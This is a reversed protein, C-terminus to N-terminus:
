KNNEKKEKSMMLRKLCGYLLYERNNNVIECGYVTLNDKQKTHVYRCEVRLQFLEGNVQDSFEVVFQNSKREFNNPVYFSIGNDSIDNIIIKYKETWCKDRVTGEKNFKIRDHIRREDVKSIRNFKNTSIAYVLANNYTTSKLDINRWSIRQGTKIDDAFMNCIIGSEIGVNLELPRGQRLYPEVNISLGGHSVLKTPFEITKDGWVIQIMLQQESTIEQLDVAFVEM